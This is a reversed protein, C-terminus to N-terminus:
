NSKEVYKELATLIAKAYKPFKKGEAYVEEAVDKNYTHVTLNRSKLFSLWAEIDDLLGERAAARIVQTPSGTEVGSEKLARQLFKWCLEFTYEFRQIVGDRVYENIPQRLIDELSNIALKLPKLDLM